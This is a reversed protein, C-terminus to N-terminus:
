GALGGSLKLDDMSYCRFQSVPDISCRWQVSDERSSEKDWRGLAVSQGFGVFCRTKFLVTRLQVSNAHTMQPMYTIEKSGGQCKKHHNKCLNNRTTTTKRINDSIKLLIHFLLSYQYRTRRHPLM